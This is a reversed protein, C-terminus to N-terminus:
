EKEKAEVSSKEDDTSCYVDLLDSAEKNGLKSAVIFDKCAAKWKNVELKSQGRHLYAVAM